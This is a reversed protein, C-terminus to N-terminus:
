GLLLRAAIGGALLAFSAAILMLDRPRLHLTQLWTRPGTGFARLDMANARDEADLVARVVVPVILPVFRRGVTLIGKLSRDSSELEYGRARQADITIKFDRILTPVFRATLDLAFAFKDPFGMRRFTIGLDAPNFTLVIALSAAAMAVARMAQQAAEVPSRFLLNLATILAMFVIAGLWIRRMREWSVRAYILVGLSLLALGALIRLDNVVLVVTTLCVYFTVRARPDFSEIRM